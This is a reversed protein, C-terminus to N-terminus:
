KSRFKLLLGYVRSGFISFVFIRLPQAKLCQLISRSLGQRYCFSSVIRHSEELRVGLDCYLKAVIKKASGESVVDPLYNEAKRIARIRSSVAKLGVRSSIQGPRGKYYILGVSDVVSVKPNLCFVRRLFDGDQDAQLAVDYGGVQEALSRRILCASHHLRQRYVYDSVFLEGPSYPLKVRSRVEVLDRIFDMLVVDASEVQEFALSEPSLEDDADVFKVFDAESTALGLNRAACAGPEGTNLLLKISIDALPLIKEFVKEVSIESRDDVVIWEVPGYKKAASISLFLRHITDENNHYPTVISISCPM